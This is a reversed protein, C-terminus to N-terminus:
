QSKAARTARSGITLPAAERRDGPQPAPGLRTRALRARVGAEGPRLARDWLISVAHDDLRRVHHIPPKSVRGQQGRECGRIAAVGGRHREPRVRKEPLLDVTEDDITAHLRSGADRRAGSDIAAGNFWLRVPGSNHGGGSCTRRVAVRFQLEAEQPLGVPGDLLALSVTRLVANNFGSSGAPVDDLQGEGIPVDDLYVDVRLDLRLGVADSNKLGVWLMAPSLATMVPEPVTNVVVNDLGVPNSLM